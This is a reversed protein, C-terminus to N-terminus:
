TIGKSLASNIGLVLSQMVEKSPPTLGVGEGIVIDCSKHHLGITPKVTVACTVEERKSGIVKEISYSASGEMSPAERYAVHLKGLVADVKYDSKIREMVVELHLEGM